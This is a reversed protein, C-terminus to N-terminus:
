STSRRRRKRSRLERWVVGVFAVDRVFYRHFLRRPEQAFRFFWEMGIKQIWAPARRKLGLYMAFGGGVCICLPKALSPPWHDFLNTMIRVDKPSELGIIVTDAGSASLEKSIDAAINAAAELDDVDFMPPIIFNATPHEAGLRDSIEASPAVVVVSRDEAAMRPWIIEFLGSGPLRARLKSGFLRSAAVIPQGDPLCFEANQFMEADASGKMGDLRVVIDVNPTLVVPLTASEPRISAADFDLIADAVEDLSASDVFNLGFLPVRELSTTSGDRSRSGM